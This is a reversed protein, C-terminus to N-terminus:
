DEIVARERLCATVTKIMTTDAKFSGDGDRLASLCRDLLRNMEAPMWTNPSTCVPPCNPHGACPIISRRIHERDNEFERLASARKTYIQTNHVEVADVFVSLEYINM